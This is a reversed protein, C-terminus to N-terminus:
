APSPIAAVAFRDPRKQQRDACLRRYKFIHFQDGIEFQLGCGFLRFQKLLRKFPAVLRTIPNRQLSPFVLSKPLVIQMLQNILRNTLLEVQRRLYRYATNGLYCVGVLQVLFCLASKARHPRLGVIVPNKPKQGIIANRNPRQVPTDLDSKNTAFMLAPQQRMTLAFDIQHEDVTVPVDGSNAVKIIGFQQRRILKIARIWNSSDKHNISINCIDSTKKITFSTDRHPIMYFSFAYWSKTHLYANRIQWDKFFILCYKASMNMMSLFENIFRKMRPLYSTELFLKYEKLCNKRKELFFSSLCIRRYRIESFSDRM